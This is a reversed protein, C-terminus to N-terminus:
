SMRLSPERKVMLGEDRLRDDVLHAPDDEFASDEFAFIRLPGFGIFDALLLENYSDPPFFDAQLGGLDARVCFNLLRFIRISQSSEEVEHLVELAEHEGQDVEV